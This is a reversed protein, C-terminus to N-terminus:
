IIFQIGTSFHILSAIFFFTTGWHEIEFQQATEDRHDIGAAEGAGALTDVAGL